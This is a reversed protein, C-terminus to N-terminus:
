YIKYMDKNRGYIKQGPFRAHGIDYPTRDRLSGSFKVNKRNYISFDGDENANSFM